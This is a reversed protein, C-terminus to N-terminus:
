LCSLRGLWRKAECMNRKEWVCIQTQIDNQTTEMGVKLVHIIRATRANM